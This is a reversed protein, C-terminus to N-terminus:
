KSVVFQPNSNLTGTPTTVQVTGTTAGTPVTATIETDSVVTFAAATGNFTVSTSGTLGNGLVIVRVGVAAAVPVTKVLPSLNNSLSYVVGSDHSGGYATAGYLIGDTGQLLGYTAYYANCRTPNCFSYLSTYTGEPTIQYINGNNIGNTTTGYLNGDNAVTPASQPYGGDSGDSGDFSHLVIYQDTPTIEFVTGEGYAGGYVTTGYLNGSADQVLTAQPSSGDACDTQSCFKYLAKYSGAPTIEYVVGDGHLGGLTTTGYFNGNSAQMPSAEPSAGGSCGPQACFSHLVKFQGLSTLEFFTGDGFAGGYQAVGYFNGDSGEILGVPNVGDSCPQTPCFSYLTTLKGGITMKYVTGSNSSNGGSYTTGYFNGDSGLIPAVMPFTGDACGALACFSYLDTLKGASTLQFIVGYGKTGGDVTSGYYNGNTSQVMSGFFPLEGNLGNFAALTTFTQAQASVALSFPLAACALALKFTLSFKSGKM